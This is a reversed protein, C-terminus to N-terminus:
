TSTLFLVHACVCMCMGWVMIMPIQHVKRVRFVYERGSLQWQTEWVLIEGRREPITTFYQNRVISLAELIATETPPMFLLGAVL